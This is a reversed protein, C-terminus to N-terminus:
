LSNGNRPPTSLQAPFASAEACNPNTSDMQNEEPYICASSSYFLKTNSHKLAEAVNINIQANNHKPKTWYWFAVGHVTKTRPVITLGQGALKKEITSFLM